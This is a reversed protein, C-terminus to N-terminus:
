LEESSASAYPLPYLPKLEEHRDTIQPIAVPRHEDKSARVAIAAACTRAAEYVNVQSLRDEDISRILDLWSFFEVGGHGVRAAM